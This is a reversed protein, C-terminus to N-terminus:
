LFRLWTIVVLFKKSLLKCRLFKIFYKLTTFAGPFDCRNNYIVNEVVNLNLPKTVVCHYIVLLAFGCDKM